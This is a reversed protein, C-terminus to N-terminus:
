HKNKDDIEVAHYGSNADLASIVTSRWLSDIYEDIRLKPYSERPTLANSRRYDVCYRYIFFETWSFEIPVNWLTTAPDLVEQELIRVIEIRQLKSIKPKIIYQASQVPSASPLLYIHHKAVRVIKLSFVCM